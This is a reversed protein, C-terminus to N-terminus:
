VQDPYFHKVSQQYSPQEFIFTPLKIVKKMYISLCLLMGIQFSCNTVKLIVGFM